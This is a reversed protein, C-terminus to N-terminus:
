VTETRVLVTRLGVIGLLLLGQVMAVYEGGVDFLALLTGVLTLSLAGFIVGLPSVIGGFFHSGGLIVAAVSILTYSGSGIPDGGFTSATVMMGALFAFLGAFAYLTVHAQLPSWGAAEIARPNNGFGRMVAGYRWLILICFAVLGPVACLYVALPVVPLEYNFANYMWDPTSGGASLLKYSALGLWVFSMGLTVVIAPVRRVHVFLGMLPYALLLAALTLVALDVDTLLWTAAVVNVLSMFNGLGLDIDGATILFMQSVSAFALPVATSFVLTLGIYTLIDSNRWVCLGFVVVFTLLSILPPVLARVRRLLRQARDDRAGDADGEVVTFSARIVREPTIEEGELVRVVRGRRMVLVRDCEVFEADDTSYWLIGRGQDALARFSRYLEAKTGLDVGRTPDDLLVVDAESALARAIVVKQQNGGSLSLIPVAPSSAKVGLDDFWRRALARERSASIVGLRAVRGLSTLTINKAISWLRFIGELARDGSVFAVSGRVDIGGTRRRRSGFIRRLLRRQGSGELGALGVIEGRRLTLSVGDLESDRLLRVDVLPLDGARPAVDEATAFEEALAGGMLQVLEGEELAGTEGAWAVRGNQMVVMRDTLDLVERLRHSIFVFSVGEDRRRHVYDKLQATERAGLSSTPEDLILLRLAPDSVARAIEVMQRQSVSLDSVKASASISNGPFVEDLARRAFGAARRRWLAGGLVDPLEIAFNEFVRLNSCLSLEQHVFRIGLAKARRPSYASDEVEGAVRVEGTDPRLLGGALRMLTSKGAGNGGVLGVVEREAVSLDVDQVARTAGFSRSVGNLELLPGAPPVPDVASVAVLPRPDGDGDLGSPASAHAPALRGGPPPSGAVAEDERM